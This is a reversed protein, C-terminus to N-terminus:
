SLWMMADFKPDLASERATSAVRRGSGFGPPVTGTTAGRMNGAPQRAATFARQNAAYVAELLKTRDVVTAMRITQLWSGVKWKQSPHVLGCRIYAEACRLAQMGDAMKVRSASRDGSGAAAEGEGPAWIQSDVDMDPDALNDGANDGFDHLDFQSAQADADTENSVPREVDVREDPAAVELKEDEARRRMSSSRAEGKKAQRLATQLTPFMADLPVGTGKAWHAAYRTLHGSTHQNWNKGTVQRLWNNFQAFWHRSADKPQTEASSGYDLGVDQFDDGRVSQDETGSLEPNVTTPQVVGSDEATRRGAQMRMYTQIDRELAVKQKHIRAVLNSESNPAKSEDGAPAAVPEEPPVGDGEGYVSPIYTEAQEGLTNEGYPGGDTHGSDDATRRNRARSSAAVKSRESLRPAGVTPAGKQSGKRGKKQPSRGNVPRQPTRRRSEKEKLWPPKNDDKDSDDDDDDDSDDDDKATRRTAQRPQQRRNRAAFQPPGLPGPPPPAPPGDMSDDEDPGVEDQLEGVAQELQDVRSELDDGGDDGFDGGDDPPGQPPPGGDGGDDPFGGEDGGGQDDDQLWPPLRDDDRDEEAAYKTRAMAKRRQKRAAKPQAQTGNSPAGVEGVDEVRRDSDLGEEEQDRDLRKTQDFDPTQLEQPSGIENAFPMDDAGDPRYPTVFEYDDDSDDDDERLTDIDEPAETEGWAKKRRATRGWGDAKYGYVKGAPDVHIHDAEHVPEGTDKHVFTSDTKPNYGLVSMSMGEPPPGSDLTGYIGAHVTRDGEGRDDTYTDKYLQSGGPQVHLRADRLHLDNIYGRVHKRTEPDDQRISWLDAQPQGTRKQRNFAHRNYHVFVEQSPDIPRAGERKIFQNDAVRKDAVIVQSVVATEDAPDFVYSLEFFGLKHCDEYVLKPQGTRPDPLHSGKHFKVHDCMDFVDTAKNGCFSCITFGAEVGMSVSDLGGNHIEAALRPFNLADVEMVTEVYKDRGNEIYRAAVVRGRARDPDFNAHNVFIPKGLFTLYSTKLQGSPWADYNQNIRASIARVKTYLMGPVFEFDKVVTGHKAFPEVMSYVAKRSTKVAAIKGVVKHQRNALISTARLQRTSPMAKNSVPVGSHKLAQVFRREVDHDRLDVTM